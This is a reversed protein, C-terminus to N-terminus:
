LIFIIEFQVRYSRFTQTIQFTIVQFKSYNMELSFPTIKKEQIRKGKNNIADRDM